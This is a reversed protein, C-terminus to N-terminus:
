RVLHAAEVTITRQLLEYLVVVVVVTPRALLDPVMQVREVQVVMVVPLMGQELLEALVVMEEQVVQALEEEEQVQMRERVLVVMEVM